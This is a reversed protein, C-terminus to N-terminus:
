HAVGRGVSEGTCCCVFLFTLVLFLYALDTAFCVKKNELILVGDCKECIFRAQNSLRLSEAQLVGSLYDKRKGYFGLRVTFFERLIDEVANYLKLCGNADYLVMSTTTYSSQLKFVKHLGETQAKALNNESLQVIFRVTTDTHYEKYDNILPPIKESGHLLAEMVSEKYNQTWVRLPLETIELEGHGLLAMEGSIAYRQADIAEITGKYGTHSTLLVFYLCSIFFM